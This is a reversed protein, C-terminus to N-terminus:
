AWHAAELCSCWSKCGPVAWYTNPIAIEPGRLVALTLARPHSQLHGDARFFPTNGLLRCHFADLKCLPEWLSHLHIQFATNYPSGAHIPELTNIQHIHNAKWIRQLTDRPHNADPKWIRQLRRSLRPLCQTQWCPTNWRKPKCMNTSISTSRSSIVSTNDNTCYYPTNPVILNRLPSRPCLAPHCSCWFLIHLNVFVCDLSDLRADLFSSLFLFISRQGKPRRPQRTM